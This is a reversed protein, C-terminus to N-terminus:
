RVALIRLWRDDPLDKAPPIKQKPFISLNAAKEVEAISVAYKKYGDKPLDSLHPVLFAVATFKGDIRGIIIKFLHTSIPIMPGKTGNTMLVDHVPVPFKADPM